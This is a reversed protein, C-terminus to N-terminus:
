ARFLDWIAIDWHGFRHFDCYEFNKAFMPYTENACKRTTKPKMENIIM